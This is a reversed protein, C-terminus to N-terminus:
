NTKLSEKYEKTRRDIKEDVPEDVKVPESEIKVTAEKMAQIEKRMELVTSELNIVRAKEKEKTMAEARIKELNVGLNKAIVEPESNELYATKLVRHEDPNTTKINRDALKKAAHIGVFDLFEKSEGAKLPQITSDYTFELDTSTPNFVKQMKYPEKETM